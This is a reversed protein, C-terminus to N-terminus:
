KNRLIEKIEKLEKHISTLLDTSSIPNVNQSQEAGRMSRIVRERQDLILTKLKEADNVGIISMVNQQHSSVGGGATEIKLQTLGFYRLIPGGIFALDQINELPITKEIHLIIGKSFRLNKNTLECTLTHYFKKSLWQGLGFLWLPLLLIGVISTILYFTVVLFIYVKVKENFTAKTILQEEM